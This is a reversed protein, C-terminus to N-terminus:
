SAGREGWWKCPPDGDRRTDSKSLHSRGSSPLEKGVLGLCRPSWAILAKELVERM